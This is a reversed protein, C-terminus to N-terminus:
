KAADVAQDSSKFYRARQGDNLVRIYVRSGKKSIPDYLMVNSRDIPMTKAVIGGREGINPNPKVCKKVVNVNEVLLKAGGDIVKLVVGIKGKDKGAIVIVQDNKRIKQM